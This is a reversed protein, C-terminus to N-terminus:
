RVSKNEVEYFKMLWSNINLIVDLRSKKSDDIWLINARTKKNKGVLENFLVGLPLM